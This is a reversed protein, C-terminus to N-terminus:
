FGEGQPLPSPTLAPSKVYHCTMINPARLTMGGIEAGLRPVLTSALSTNGPFVLLLPNM